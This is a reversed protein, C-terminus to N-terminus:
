ISWDVKEKTMGRCQVAIKWSYEWETSTSTAKEKNSQGKKILDIQM